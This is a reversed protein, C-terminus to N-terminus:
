RTAPRWFWFGPLGPWWAALREETPTKPEPYESAAPQPVLSLGSSHADQTDTSTLPLGLPPLMTFKSEPQVAATEVAPKEPAKIVIKSKCANMSLEVQEDPDLKRVCDYESALSYLQSALLHFEQQAWLEGEDESRLRKPRSGESGSPVYSDLACAAGCGSQAHTM